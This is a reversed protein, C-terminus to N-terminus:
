RVVSCTWAVGGGWGWLIYRTVGFVPLWGHLYPLERLCFPFFALFVHKRIVMIFISIKPCFLWVESCLNIGNKSSLSSARPLIWWKSNPHAPQIDVNALAIALLFLYIQFVNHILALSHRLYLNSLFYMSTEMDQLHYNKLLQRQLLVSSDHCLQRGRKWCM